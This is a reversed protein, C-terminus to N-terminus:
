SLQCPAYLPPAPGSVSHTCSTYLWTGDVGVRYCGLSPGGTQHRGSQHRDTASMFFCAELHLPASPDTRGFGLGRRKGGCLQSPSTADIDQCRGCWRRSCLLNNCHGAFSSEAKYEFSQRQTNGPNFIALFTVSDLWICPGLGDQTFAQYMVPSAPTDATIGYLVGALNGTTWCSEPYMDNSGSGLSLGVCFIVCRQLRRLPHLSRRHSTPAALVRGSTRVVYGALM